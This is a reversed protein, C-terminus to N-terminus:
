SAEGAIAVVAWYAVDYVTKGKHRRPSGMDRVLVHEFGEHGPWPVRRIIKDGAKVETRANNIRNTITM